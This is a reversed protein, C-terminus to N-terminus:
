EFEFDRTKLTLSRVYRLVTERSAIRVPIKVRPAIGTGWRPTDGFLQYLNQKPISLRKFGRLIVMLGILTPLVIIFWGGTMVMKIPPIFYVM